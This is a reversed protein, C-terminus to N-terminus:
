DESDEERAKTARAIQQTVIDEPKMGQHPGVTLEGTKSDILGLRTLYHAFMKEMQADFVKMVAQAVKPSAEDLRETWQRSDPHSFVKRGVVVYTTNKVLGEHDAIAVAVNIAVTGGEVAHPTAYRDRIARNHRTSVGQFVTM